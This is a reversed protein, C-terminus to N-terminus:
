REVKEKKFKPGNIFYFIVKEYFILFPPSFPLTTLQAVIIQWFPSVSQGNGTYLELNILHKLFSHVLYWVFLIALCPKIFITSHSTLSRM